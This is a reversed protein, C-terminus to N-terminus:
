IYKSPSCRKPPNELKEAHNNKQTLYPLLKINLDTM